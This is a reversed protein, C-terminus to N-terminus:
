GGVVIKGKPYLKVTKSNGNVTDIYETNILENYKDNGCIKKYAADVDGVVKVVANSTVSKDGIPVSNGTAVNVVTQTTIQKNLELNYPMNYGTTKNGGFLSKVEEVTAFQDPSSYGGFTGTVPGGNNYLAKLANAIIARSAEGNGCRALQLIYDAPTM